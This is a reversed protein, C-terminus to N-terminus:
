VSVAARVKEVDAALGGDDGGALWAKFAAGDAAYRDNSNSEMYSEDWRGKGAIPHVHEVIVDPRYVIRDLAKGLDLVAQDVYLHACAPLMMWGVARVIDASVVWATPLNEGQLLDNGYAIGSGGIGEIAEILRRDWAPTRPRHDDGLSALYLPPDPSELAELALQNTWASLTQRPGRRLELAVGPGTGALNANLAAPYDSPDDDDFGAWVTIAGLGGGQTTRIAKVMEAFQQPRGRSPTIIALM